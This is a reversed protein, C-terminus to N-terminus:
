KSGSPLPAPNLPPEALESSLRTLETHDPYGLKRAMQIEALAQKPRAGKALVRALIVHYTANQGDLRIAIRIHQESEPMRGSAFLALALNSQVDDDDPSWYAAREFAQAAGAPDGRELALEGMTAPVFSCLVRILLAGFLTATSLAAVRWIRPTSRAAPTGTMQAHLAEALPVADADVQARLDVYILTIFLMQLSVWGYYPVRLLTTLLVGAAEPILIGPTVAFPLYLLGFGFSYPLLRWGAGRWYRTSRQLAKNGNLGEFVVVHNAWVYCIGLVIGPVILFVFGLCVRLWMWLQVVILRGWTQSGGRVADSTSVQRGMAMERVTFLQVAACFTGLLLDVVRKQVFSDMSAFWPNLVTGHPVWETVLVVPLCALCPLLFLAIPARTLLHYLDRHLLSFSRPTRRAAVRPQISNTSSELM